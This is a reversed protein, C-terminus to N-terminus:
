GERVQQVQHELQEVRRVLDRMQSELVKTDTQTANVTATLEKLAAKMSEFSDKALFAVLGVGLNLVGLVAKFILDGDINM